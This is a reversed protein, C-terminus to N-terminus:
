HEEKQENMELITEGSLPQREIKIIGFCLDVNKCRSQEVQRCCQIIFGILMGLAALAGTETWSIKM